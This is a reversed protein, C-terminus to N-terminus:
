RHVKHISLNYKTCTNRSTQSNSHMQNPHFLNIINDDKSDSKDSKDTDSNIRLYFKIQEIVAYNTFTNYM